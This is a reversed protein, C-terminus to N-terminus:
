CNFKREKDKYINYAKKLIQASVTISIKPNDLQKKCETTDNDLGFEENCFYGPSIQM